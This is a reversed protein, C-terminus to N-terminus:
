KFSKKIRLLLKAVVIAVDNEYGLEAFQELNQVIWQDDFLKWGNKDFLEKTKERDAASAFKGTALCLYAKPADACHGQEVLQTKLRNIVTKRLQPDNFLKYRSTYRGGGAIDEFRNGPSDLLSKCEVVLLENRKGSYAIVDIEWRPSSPRGIVVKEEKTLEVKFSTDTWYGSRKLLSSVVSEFADM